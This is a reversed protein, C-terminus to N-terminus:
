FIDGVDSSGWVVRQGDFFPNDSQCGEEYQKDPNLFQRVIAKACDVNYLVAHGSAKFEYYKSHPLRKALVRGWEVPTASDLVGALILIPKNTEVPQHFLEDVEQEGWLHCLDANLSAMQWRKLVPYPAYKSNINNIFSQRDKVENENCEVELYVPNSFSEDLMVDLSNQALVRLAEYRGAYLSQVVNPVEIVTDIDYGADYLLSYFRAATVIYDVPENNVRLTLRIPEISLRKLVIHLKEQLQSYQLACTPEDKCAKLMGEVADIFLDPMTEEGDVEQPYVSDLVISAVKEPHQREIELALRTGYSTGYLHWGEVELLNGLDAVDNASRVTGLHHLADANTKDGLLVDHCSKLLKYNALADEEPEMKQSLMLLSGQSFDDCHLSPESLGTGRADFLVVDHGWDNEAITPLWFNSVSDSDLWSSSGPGGSLNIVPHKSNRWFSDRVIVIPLRFFSTGEEKRTTLYGCEIRKFNFGYFPHDANLGNPLFSDNFWCSSLEFRAGNALSANTAKLSNGYMVMIIFLLLILTIVALSIKKM